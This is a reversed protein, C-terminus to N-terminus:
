APPRPGAGSSSPRLAHAELPLLPGHDVAREGLRLLQDRAEPQPLHLREVLRDLPDLACGTRPPRSRSGGPTRPRPSRRRGGGSHRGLLSREPRLGFAVRLRAPGDHAVGDTAGDLRDPPDLRRSSIPPSARITRSTPSASSRACSASTAASSCHGAVPTGSLGPRRASPAGRLVARDVLEPAALHLSRLCSSSADLATARAALAGSRRPARRRCRRRGARAEHEDGAMRHQGGLRAHRERQAQEAAQRVSSIARANRTGSAVMAWRM